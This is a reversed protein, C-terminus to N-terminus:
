YDMDGMHPSTSADKKPEPEEAVAAETTLLMAAASVANRIAAKTVKAPDIIGDAFMDSVVENKLANYGANETVKGEAKGQLKRQLIMGLHIKSDVGVDHTTNKIIQELPALLANIVIHYGTEYSPDLKEKEIKKREEFHDSIRKSVAVLAAGGGAM